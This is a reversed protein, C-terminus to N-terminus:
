ESAERKRFYALAEKIDGAPTGFNYAHAYDWGFVRGQKFTLGGNVPADVHDYNRKRADPHGKPLEVYAVAGGTGYGTMSRYGGGEDHIVGAVRPRHEDLVTPKVKESM